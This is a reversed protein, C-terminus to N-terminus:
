FDLRFGLRIVRPPQVFTTQRFGPGTVVNEEVENAMNLLNFADLTVAVRRRRVLLAKEVRVDLTTLFTFRTDGSAYAMVAEPGQALDPAIVLRAFPQGDQYRAIASLGVGHPALYTTAWKLVYARDFFLRGQAYTGANPNAFEEGIVGQDNETALFGRNAAGGDARYGTIGVNLHLRATRREFSIEIGKYTADDSAPNTLLYQDAGFTSPLRDYIALLRDDASSVYDPGQDPVLITRYSSVPAGVDIVGVLSGERRVIGTVRITSTRGVRSEAGFTLEDTHPARLAPSISAVTQATGARAVLVGLENLQLQGDGNVDNWRYVRAWPAAPDGFATLDFTVAPQYRAYGISFSLAPRVAYRAGVRPLLARWGIGTTAGQASGRSVEARLGADITLKSLTLHDSAWASANSTRREDEMAPVVWQWVRAALGNVEEGVAPASIVRGSWGAHSVTAGFTLEHTFAGTRRAPPAYSMRGDIRSTASSTAPSPMPGDVLREIVGGAALASVLPDVSGRAVGGAALWHTGTETTREWTAQAQEFGDDEMVVDATQFMARDDFPRHAHQYGGFVRLEDHNHLQMVLQGGVSEEGADLSAPRGRDVQAAQTVSGALFLGAHDRVPTGYQVAADGFSRLAAIPPVAASTGAVFGPPTLSTQVSTQPTAGARRIAVVASLGSSRLDVPEAASSLALTDILQPDILMLPTGPHAPDTVDLDGLSWTTRTWSAGHAGMRAAVGTALGGDDTRDVIAFPYVSDIVSVLNGGFPLAVLDAHDVDMAAGARTWDTVRMVGSTSRTDAEVSVHDGAELRLSASSVARGAVLVRVDYTGSPLGRIIAV